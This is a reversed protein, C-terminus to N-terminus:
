TEDAQRHAPLWIVFRAGHPHLNEGHISGGHKVVVQQAVSLGLGTGNARTTFFPTFLKARVAASLGPGHDSVTLECGDVSGQEHSALSITIPGDPDAQAANHILNFLAHRILVPDVDIMVAHDPGRLALPPHGGLSQQFFTMTEQVLGNMDTTQPASHAAKNLMMM